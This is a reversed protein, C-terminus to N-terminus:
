VHRNRYELVYLSAMAALCIAMILILIVIIGQLFHNTCLHDDETCIKKVATHKYQYPHRSTRKSSNLTSMHSTVTSGSSTSKLSDIRKIKSLKKNVKELEDIRTELNDTVKCLEKVAGVNEMFIREKNVVLFNEIHQGNPLLIDGAGQVADPILTQVEQAIIGTSTSSEEGLGIHKAFEPLYQYRVIRMNAVNKLQEKTDVEEINTKARADSPQVIHGTVKMNGHVVLAEDPRDTNIGVRGAHYISDALQGRQWSLEMDNEFQGPNSARVIIRESAHAIVTYNSDGSAVCLSVVLYFYRQDPNPKGKKRM